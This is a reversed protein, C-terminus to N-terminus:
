EHKKERHPRVARFGLNGLASRSSKIITGSTESDPFFVLLVPELNRNQKHKRVNNM